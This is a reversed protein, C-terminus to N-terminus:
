ATETEAELVEIVAIAENRKEPAVRVLHWLLDVAQQRTADSTAAQSEPQVSPEAPLDRLDLGGYYNGAIQIASSVRAGRGIYNTNRSRYSTENEPRNNTNQNGVDAMRAVYSLGHAYALPRRVWTPRAGRLDTWREPM